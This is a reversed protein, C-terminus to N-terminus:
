RAGSRKARFMQLVYLPFRLFTAPDIGMDFFLLKLLPAIFRPRNMMARAILRGITAMASTQIFKRDAPTLNHQGLSEAMLRPMVFRFENVDPVETIHWPEMLLRTANRTPLVGIRREIEFALARESRERQVSANLSGVSSGHRRYFLLPATINALGFRRSLRLWLEYDECHAYAPDYPKETSFVSRRILVTPHYLCSVRLLEWHIQAATEPPPMLRLGKAPEDEFVVINTGVVAIEPHAELFAVQAEFRGPFAIDDADMRAIFEGRALEIGLNLTRILGLNEANRIIRLRPDQISSLIEFTRDTSGDDMALLEFDTFTQGLISKIAEAIFLEGNFVPLLVSIRLSM